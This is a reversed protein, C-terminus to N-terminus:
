LILRFFVSFFPFWIHTYTHALMGIRMWLLDLMALLVPSCLFLFFVNNNSLWWKKNKARKERTYLMLNAIQLFMTPPAFFFQRASFLSVAVVLLRLLLFLPLWLWLLLLLTNCVCICVYFMSTIHMFNYSCAYHRNNASHVKKITSEEEWESESWIERTCTPFANKHPGHQAWKWKWGYQNLTM